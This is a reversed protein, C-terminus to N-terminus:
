ARVAGQTRAPEHRQPPTRAGARHAPGAMPSGAARARTNVTRGIVVTGKSEVTLQHYTPTIACTAVAEETALYATGMQLGAKLGKASLDGLMGALFAAARGSAIGGAFLVTIEGLDIGDQAARDLEHLNANWLDLSGLVGIHGGSECGEFVFHRLGSKLGEALIAPSPCHLYCVTGLSEIRQALEVGGAALIAFPPPNEAMLELHAQYCNRNVELGILGVGFTGHTKERSLALGERAIPGPMNGMALFPLAGAELVAGLFGPNDSVHAMPGQIIPFRTGHVGCLAADEGFPWSSAGAGMSRGFAKVIDAARPTEAALQKATAIDESLPFLADDSDPSSAPRSLAKVLRDEYAAMGDPALSEEEKRLERVKRTGVRAYVRLPRGSAESLTVTAPLPLSRLFEGLERTIGSHETLLLHVDLVVGTGGASIVGAASHLGIGGQLFVPLQSAGLIEQLLVFGGTPSVWGPGEHGRAVLGAAGAAEAARAEKATGVEVAVPVPFAALVLPEWEALQAADEYPLLVLKVDQDPHFGRLEDLRLRVGHATAPRALSSQLGSPVCDVIGLGGARSVEEIISVDDNVAPNVYLVPIELGFPLGRKM